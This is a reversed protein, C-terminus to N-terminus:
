FMVGLYSGFSAASRGGTNAATNLQCCSPSLPSFPGPLSPLTALARSLLPSGRCPAEAFVPM